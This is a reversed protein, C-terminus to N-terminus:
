AHHMSGVKLVEAVEDPTITGSGDRDFERFAGTCPLAPDAVSDFAGPALCGAATARCARAIMEDNELKNIHVTAALFEQWDIAGAAMCAPVASLAANLRTKM